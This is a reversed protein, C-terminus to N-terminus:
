TIVFDIKCASVTVDIVKLIDVYTDNIQGEAPEFGTWMSGYRVVNFGGKALNAIRGEELMEPDYWPFGKPDLVCSTWLSYVFSTTLNCATTEFNILSTM